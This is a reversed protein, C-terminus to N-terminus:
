LTLKGKAAACRQGANTQRTTLILMKEEKCSTTLTTVCNSLEGVTTVRIKLPQSHPIKEEVVVFLYLQLNDQLSFNCNNKKGYYM